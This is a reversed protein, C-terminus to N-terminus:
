KKEHVRFYQKAVRMLFNRDGDRGYRSFRIIVMCAPSGLLAGKICNADLNGEGLAKMFANVSEEPCDGPITIYACEDYCEVQVEPRTDKMDDLLAGVDDTATHIHNEDYSKIRRFTGYRCRDMHDVPCFMPFEQVDDEDVTEREYRQGLDERVVREIVLTCRTKDCSTCQLVEDVRFPGVRYADCDNDDREDYWKLSM